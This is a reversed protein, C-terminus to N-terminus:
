RQAGAGGECNTEGDCGGALKAPPMHDCALLTLYLKQQFSTSTGDAGQWYVLESSSTGAVRGVSARAASSFSALVRGSQPEVVALHLDNHGILLDTFRHASDSLQGAGAVESLVHRVQDRKGALEAAVRADLARGLARYGSVSAAGVVLLGFVATFAALRVALPLEALRGRASLPTM